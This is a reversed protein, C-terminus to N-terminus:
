GLAYAHITEQSVGSGATDAAKGRLSVYRAGAPPTLFVSWRDGTPSLTVTSWTTGDDYSVQVTATKVTAATSARDVWVTLTHGGAPARNSDDLPTVFRVALMPPVRLPDAWPFSWQTKQSTNLTSWPQSRTADMSVEYRGAVAPGPFVGRGLIDGRGIEVGDRRAVL